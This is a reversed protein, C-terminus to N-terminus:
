QCLTFQANDIAAELVTTRIVDDKSNGYMHHVLTRLNHTTNNKRKNCVYEVSPVV